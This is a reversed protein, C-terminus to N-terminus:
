KIAAGLGAAFKVLGAAAAVIGAVLSANAVGEKGDQVKAMNHQKSGWGWRGAHFAIAGACGILILGAGWNVLQQLQPGGPGQTPDPNYAGGGPPATTTQGWAVSADLVLGTVAVGSVGVARRVRRLATRVWGTARHSATDLGIEDGRLHGRVFLFM